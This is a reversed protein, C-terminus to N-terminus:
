AASARRQFRETWSAATLPSIVARRVLKGGRGRGLLHVRLPHEGLPVEVSTEGAPLSREEAVVYGGRPDRRESFRVAWETVGPAAQWRLLYASGETTREVEM